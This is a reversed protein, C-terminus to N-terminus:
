YFSGADGVADALTDRKEVSADGELFAGDVVERAGDLSEHTEVYAALAFEAESGGALEVAETRPLRADLWDRVVDRGLPTLPSLGEVGLRHLVKAGEVPALGAAGAADGVSTGGLYTDLVTAAREASCPLDDAFPVLREALTTDTGDVAAVGRERQRTTVELGAAIDSLGM